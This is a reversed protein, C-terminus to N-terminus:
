VLKMRDGQRRDYLTRVCTVRDRTVCPVSVHRGGGRSAAHRGDDVPRDADGDEERHHETQTVHESLEDLDGPEEQELRAALEVRAEGLRDLPYAHQRAALFRVVVEAQRRADRADDEDDVDDEPHQEVHLPLVPAVDLGEVEEEDGDGGDAESVHERFVRLAEHRRGDVEQEAEGEDGHHDM